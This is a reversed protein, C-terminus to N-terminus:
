ATMPNITARGTVRQGGSPMGFYWANDPSPLDALPPNSTTALDYWYLTNGLNAFPGTFQIGLGPLQPVGSTDYYALNGLTQYFLSAMESANPGVSVVNYGCDTNNFVFNNLCGDNNIDVMHPLRWTSVGLYSAANMGAIWSQATDWSMQGELGPTNSIGAAGFTTSAALNADATWTINLVDDYYAQGGLRSLLAANASAALLCLTAVAAVAKM